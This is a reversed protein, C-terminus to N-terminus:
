APGGTAPSGPSSPALAEPAVFAAAFEAGARLLAQSMGFGYERSCLLHWAPQGSWTDPKLICRLGAVPGVICSGHCGALDLATLKSLLSAFQEGALLFHAYSASVDKVLVGFDPLDEDPAAGPARVSLYKRPGIQWLTQSPRLPVSGDSIQAEMKTWDDLRAIAVVAEPGGSRKHPAHEGFSSSSTSPIM